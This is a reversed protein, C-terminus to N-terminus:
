LTVQKIYSFNQSTHNQKFMLSLRFYFSFGSDKATSERAKPWWAPLEPSLVLCLHTSVGVGVSLAGLMNGTDELVAQMNQLPIHQFTQGVM